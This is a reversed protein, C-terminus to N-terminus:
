LGVGRRCSFHPRLLIRSRIKKVYEVTSLRAVPIPRLEVPLVLVKAHRLFARPANITTVVFASTRVTVARCRKEAGTRSAGASPTRITARNPIAFANTTWGARRVQLACEATKRTVAATQSM